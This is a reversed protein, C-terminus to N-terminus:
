QTGREEPSIKLCRGSLMAQFTRGGPLPQVSSAGRMQLRRGPGAVDEKLQDLGKKSTLDELTKKLRKIEQELDQRRQQLDSLEQEDAVGFHEFISAIETSLSEAKAQLEELSSGGGRVTITGLDGITFKTPGLVLYEGDETLREVDPETIISIDEAQLDFGIRIAAQEIQGNVTALELKQDQYRKLDKKRPLPTTSLEQQRKRFETETTEIRGIEELVRAVEEEFRRIREIAQLIGLDKEVQRLEPEHVTKWTNHHADATRQELAHM